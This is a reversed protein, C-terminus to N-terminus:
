ICIQRFEETLVYQLSKDLSFWAGDGVYFSVSLSSGRLGSQRSGLFGSLSWEQRGTPQCAGEM